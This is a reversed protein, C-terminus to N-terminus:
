ELIDDQRKIIAEVIMANYMKASDKEAETFETVDIDLIQYNAQCKRKKVYEEYLTKYSFNQLYTFKQLQALYEDMKPALELM